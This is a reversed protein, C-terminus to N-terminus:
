QQTIAIMQKRDIQILRPNQELPLAIYKVAMVLAKSKLLPAKEILSVRRKTVVDTVFRNKPNKIAFNPVFFSM